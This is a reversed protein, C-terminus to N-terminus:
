SDCLFFEKVKFSPFDSDARTAELSLCLEWLRLGLGSQSYVDSGVDQYCKMVIYDLVAWHIIVSM